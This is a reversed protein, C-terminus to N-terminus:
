EHFLIQLVGCWLCGHIEKYQHCQIRKKFFVKTTSLGTVINSALNITSRSDGGGNYRLDLILHKVGAAKFKAFIADVQNDYEDEYGTQGRDPAFFNYVFYGIKKGDITYVSDLFVPNEAYELVTLNKTSPNATSDRLGDKSMRHDFVTVTHNKAM